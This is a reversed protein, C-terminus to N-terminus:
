QSARPQYGRLTQLYLNAEDKTADALSGKGTISTFLESAEEKSLGKSKILGAISTVQEATILEPQYIEDALTNLGLMFRLARGIARTEAMRVIHAAIMKNVSGPSADGLGSWSTGDEMVVKAKVIALQGNDANPAQILNTDIEKIGRELALLMAGTFKLHDRGQINQFHQQRFELSLSNLDVGVKKESM